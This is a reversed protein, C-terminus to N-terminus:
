GTLKASVVIVGPVPLPFPPAIGALGLSKIIPFLRQVRAHGMVKSLTPMQRDTSIAVLHFGARSLAERLGQRSFVNTVSPAFMSFNTGYLRAILSDVVPTNFYLRGGPKLLRRAHELHQEADQLNSITGLMIILDFRETAKGYDLFDCVEVDIGYSSRARAAFTASLDVGFVHNGADRLVSLLSGTACGVELVRSGSPLIPQLDRRYRHEAERRRQREESAYDLYASAKSSGAQQYEESSYWAALSETSIQPSQIWSGCQRCNVFRVKGWSFTKELTPDSEQAARGCVCHSRSVYTFQFREAPSSASSPEGSESLSPTGGDLRGGDHNQTM